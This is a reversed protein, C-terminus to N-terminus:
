ENDVSSSEWHSTPSGRVKGVTGSHLQCTKLSISDRSRSLNGNFSTCVNVDGESNMKIVDKFEDPAM